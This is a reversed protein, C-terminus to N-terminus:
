GAVQVHERGDRFMDKSVSFDVLKVIPLQGEAFSLMVNSLKLDRIMKGRQHCFDVQTNLLM